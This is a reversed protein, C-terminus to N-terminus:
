GANTDTDITLHEFTATNAYCDINGYAIISQCVGGRFGYIPVHPVSLATIRLVSLLRCKLHNGTNGRFVQAMSAEGIRWLVTDMHGISRLPATAMIKTM